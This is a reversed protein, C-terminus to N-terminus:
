LNYDIETGLCNVSFERRRSYLDESEVALSVSLCLCLCLSASLCLCWLNHNESTQLAVDKSVSPSLDPVVLLFCRVLSNLYEHSGISFSLSIRQHHMATSFILLAFDKFELFSVIGKSILGKMNEMKGDQLFHLQNYPLQNVANYWM